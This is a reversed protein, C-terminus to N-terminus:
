SVGFLAADGTTNAHSPLTVDGVDPRMNSFVKAAPRQEQVTDGNVGNSVGNTDAWQVVPPFDIEAPDLYKTRTTGKYDALTYGNCLWSMANGGMEDLYEYDWDEWRPNRQAHLLSLANGCYYAINRGEEKGRKFWSKCPQGFISKKFYAHTHAAYEKVRVTKITMSKIKDRLLKKICSIMLECEGDVCLYAGGAGPGCNPGMYVYCNPMKDVCMGLYAEPEPDMVQNWTIGDKGTM